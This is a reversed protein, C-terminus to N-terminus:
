INIIQCISNNVTKDLLLISVRCPNEIVSCPHEFVICAYESRIYTSKETKKDIGYFNYVMKWGVKNRDSAVLIDEKLM